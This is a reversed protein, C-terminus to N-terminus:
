LEEDMKATSYQVEVNRKFKFEKECSSCETTVTEGDECRVEWSDYEENDCYPCIANKNYLYKYDSM